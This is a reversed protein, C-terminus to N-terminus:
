KGDFERLRCASVRDAAEYLGDADYRAIARGQRYIAFQGKKLHSVWDMFGDYPVHFYFGHDITLPEGGISHRPHSFPIMGLKDGEEISWYPNLVSVLILGEAHDYRNVKIVMVTGDPYRNLATCSLGGADPRDITAESWKAQVPENAVLSMIMSAALLAIVRTGRM